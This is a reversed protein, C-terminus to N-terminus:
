DCWCCRHLLLATCVSCPEGESFSRKVTGSVDGVSSFMCYPVVPLAAAVLLLRLARKVFSAPHGVSSGLPVSYLNPYGVLTHVPFGRWHIPLTAEFAASPRLNVAKVVCTGSPIRVLPNLRAM